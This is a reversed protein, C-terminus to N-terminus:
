SGVSTHSQTPTDTSVEVDATRLIQYGVEVTLARGPRRTVDTYAVENIDVRTLSVKHGIKLRRVSANFTHVGSRSRM